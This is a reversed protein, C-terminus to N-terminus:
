ATLSMTIPHRKLSTWLRCNIKYYFIILNQHKRIRVAQVPPFIFLYLLHFSKFSINRCRVDQVIKWLEQIFKPDLSFHSESIGSKAHSSEPDPIKKWFLRFTGLKYHYYLRAKCFKSIHVTDPTSYFDETRVIDVDPGDGEDTMFNAVAQTSTAGKFFAKILEDNKALESM